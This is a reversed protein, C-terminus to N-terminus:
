SAQTIKVLLSEYKLLFHHVCRIQVYKPVDLICSLEFLLTLGWFFVTIDLM